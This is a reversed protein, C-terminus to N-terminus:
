LESLAGAGDKELGRVTPLCQQKSSRRAPSLSLFRQSPSSGSSRDGITGGSRRREPAHERVARRATLDRTLSRGRGASASGNSDKEPFSVHVRPESENELGIRDANDAKRVIIDETTTSPSIKSLDFTDLVAGDARCHGMEDAAQMAM